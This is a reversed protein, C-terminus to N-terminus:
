RATCDDRQTWLETCDFSTSDGPQLPAGEASYGYDVINWAIVTVLSSLVLFVSSPDINVANHCTL